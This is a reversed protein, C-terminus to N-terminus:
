HSSTRLHTSALDDARRREESGPGYPRRTRDALSARGPSRHTVTGRRRRALDASSLLDYEKQHRCLADLRDEEALRDARRLFFFM